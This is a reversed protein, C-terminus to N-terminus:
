GRRRRLLGGLGGLAVLALTAPEPVTQSAAYLLSSGMSGIPMAEGIALLYTGPLTPGFELDMWEGPNLIFGTPVGTVLIGTPQFYKDITLNALANDKWLQIFYQRPTGEVNTITASAKDFQDQTITMPLGNRGFNPLRSGDKTFYSNADDVYPTYSYYGYDLYAIGGAAVTGFTDPPAFDAARHNTTPVAGDGDHGPPQDKPRVKVEHQAVDNSFEIHLDNAPDPSNNQITQRLYSDAAAAQAVPLSLIALTALILLAKANM